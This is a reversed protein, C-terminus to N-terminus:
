LFIESATAQFQETFFTKKSIECFECFFVQALNEKKIFNCALAQLKILSARACTNEPSDQSIELLM